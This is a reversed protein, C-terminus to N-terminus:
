QEERPNPADTAAASRTEDLIAAAQATSTICDVNMSGDDARRAVTMSRFRGQLDVTVTGDPHRVSTLGESSRSLASQARSSLPTLEGKTPPRMTGTEPDRVVRMTAAGVTPEVASSAAAEDTADTAATSEDAAEQPASNSAEDQANLAAASVLLAILAVGLLARIPDQSMSPSLRDNM